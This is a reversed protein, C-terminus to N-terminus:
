TKLIFNKKILYLITKMYTPFEKSALDNQLLIFYVDVPSIQQNSLHNLFKTNRKFVKKIFIIYPSKKLIDLTHFKGYKEINKDWCPIILLFSLSKQGKDLIRIIREAMKMMILEDYPPNAVYLGKKIPLLFFDGKSGFFREIDYFLSCYNELVTNIASGFLEFKLGLNSKLDYYFDSDVALQQNSSNLSKYRLILIFILNNKDPIDSSLRKYLKNYLVSHVPIKENFFNSFIEPNNLTLNDESYLVKVSEKHNLFFPLLSFKRIEDSAKKFLNIIGLKKLVLRAEINHTIKKNAIKIDRVIQSNNIIKSPFLCDNSKTVNLMIWHSLINSIDITINLKKSRKLITKEIKKILIYREIELLVNPQNM